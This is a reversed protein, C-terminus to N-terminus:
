CGSRVTEVSHLLGAVEHGADPCGQGVVNCAGLTGDGDRIGAARSLRFLKVPGHEQLLAPNNDRESSFRRCRSCTPGGPNSGPVLPDHTAVPLTRCFEQPTAQYPYATRMTSRVGSRQGGNVRRVKRRAPSPHTYLSRRRNGTRDSAISDAESAEVPSRTARRRVSPCDTAPREQRRHAHRNGRRYPREAASSHCLLLALGGCRIVRLGREHTFRYLTPKSVQLRSRVEALTMYKEGTANM